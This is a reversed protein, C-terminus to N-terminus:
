WNALKAREEDSPPTWEVEIKRHPTNEHMDNPSSGCDLCRGAADRTQNSDAPPTITLPKIRVVVGRPEPLAPDDSVTTPEPLAAALTNAKGVLFPRSGGKVSERRPRAARKELRAATPSDVIGVSSLSAHYADSEAVSM